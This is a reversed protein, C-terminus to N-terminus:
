STLRIIKRPCAEVCAGCGTCKKYDIAALNDYVEIANFECKKECIKCGICGDECVNRTVAGKNKSSCQVFYPANEPILSIINKPCEEVCKGCGTCKEERINVHGDTVTIADFPCVAACSGLGLCAYACSKDGNALRNAARCDSIGHYEFKESNCGGSCIVHAIKRQTESSASVGMIEAVKQAVAAGGVPCGNVSAKGSVVAEAYASCGAYGCGGCNASPLVETIKGIREDTEVHFVKSAVALIIGFVLGIGGISVAPILLDQLM